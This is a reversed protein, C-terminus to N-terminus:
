TMFFLPFLDSHATFLRVYPSKNPIYKSGALIILNYRFQHVLCSQSRFLVRQNLKFSTFSVRSVRPSSCSSSRSTFSSPSPFTRTSVFSQDASEMDPDWRDELETNAPGKPKSFYGCTRVDNNVYICLSLTIPM